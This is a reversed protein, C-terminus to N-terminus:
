YYQFVRHQLMQIVTNILQVYHVEVIVFLPISLPVQHIVNIITLAHHLHVQTAINIQEAVLVEVLALLPILHLARQILM